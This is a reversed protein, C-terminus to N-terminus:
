FSVKVGAYYFRGMPDYYTSTTSNRTSARIAYPPYQDFINDIGGYLELNWRGNDGLAGFDYSAYIDSITEGGVKYPYQNEIPNEPKVDALRVEDIFRLKYSATFRDLMYTLAMQGKWEPRRTSGAYEEPDTAAAYSLIEYSNLYNLLFRFNFLGPMWQDLDFGYDLEFDVGSTKLTNFNQPILVVKVLQGLLLPQNSGDSRAILECFENDLTDFRDYCNATVQADLPAVIVDEIEIDYYDVTLTMNNDLFEPLWVFGLTLSKATEEQLDPNGGVVGASNPRVNQNPEWTLPDLGFRALDETCNALRRAPDPGLDVNAPLCPDFFGGFSPTQPAFLEEISPARVANAYMTRFRLQEVPAWEAGFRWSEASGTVNYDSYRFGGEVALTEAFQADSLIPLRAEVFAEWVDYSGKVPLFQGAFTEGSQQQQDPITEAEEDRYEFGTAFSLGGAPMEFLTGTISGGAVLQSMSRNTLLDVLFYDLSDQSAVGLGFLNLPRCALIDPDSTGGALAAQVTSRCAPSGPAVGTVGNVDTVADTALRFRRPDRNNYEVYQETTEGYQAYLQYDWDKIDLQGNLGTVFRYLDRNIHAERRGWDDYYVRSMTVLGFQGLNSAMFGDLLANGQPLFPNDPYISFLASNETYVIADLMPPSVVEADVAYYKGELFFETTDNIDYNVRGVFTTRDLPTSVMQNKILDFGDGGSVLSSAATGYGEVIPRLGTNQDFVLAQGDVLGYLIGREDIINTLRVNPALILRPIGDNPGTDEPNGIFGWRELLYDRQVGEIGGLDNFSLSVVANGRDDAFNGGATISAYTNEGGGEQSDGYRADFQIGDFDDKMIFNVVGAIADSGYAVTAGGTSIEVREILANPISGVDVVTSGAVSGVHRIGDVLVLTRQSGLDRLNLRETGASALPANTAQGSVETMRGDNRGFQPLEQLYDSILTVGSQDIEGADVATIPIPAEAGIRTLRSGTVIVEELVDDEASKEDESSTQAYASTSVLVLTGLTTGLIASIFRTTM